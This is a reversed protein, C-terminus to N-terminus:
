KYFGRAEVRYERQKGHKYAVIRYGDVKQDYVLGRRPLPAIQAPQMLTITFPPTSTRTSPM